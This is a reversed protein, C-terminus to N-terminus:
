ENPATALVASFRRYGGLSGRFRLDEGSSEDGGTEWCDSSRTFRSKEEKRAETENTFYLREYLSRESSAV